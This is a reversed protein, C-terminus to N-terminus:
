ILYNNVFIINFDNKKPTIEIILILSISIQFFFFPVHKIFTIRKHIGVQLLIIDVDYM